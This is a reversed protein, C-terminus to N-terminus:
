KKVKSKRSKLEKEAQDWGKYWCGRMRSRHFEHPEGNIRARYGKDYYRQWYNVVGPFRADFYDRLVEADSVEVDIGM